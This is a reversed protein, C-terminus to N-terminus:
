STITARGAARPLLVKAGIVTAFRSIGAVFLFSISISGNLYSILHGKEKIKKKASPQPQILVVRSEIPSEVSLSERRGRYRMTAALTLHQFM